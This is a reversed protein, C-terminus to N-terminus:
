ATDVTRREGIELTNVSSVKRDIFSTLFSVFKYVDEFNTALGVSIRVSSPFIDLRTSAIEYLEDFSVRENREFFSAMKDRSFDHVIEGSGPNCFCGTRLSINDKGALMEVRRYDFRVGEPDELNFSVTGGRMETTLPGYLRVLPAGNTHRLDTLQDLLWGTLATVRAQIRDIGVSEIHRLGIEVAPISLYNVTGDEFAAHGENLYHWGAGQVSTISITGGAFWPRQLQELADKRAVLAGIGTPYGFIKYFSMSVFDPQNQSFDLRNTPTYAAADLLVHWGRRKAEAIWRLDHKVGSFNSQGPFAFLNFAGPNRQDLTRTLEDPDVRLDPMHTPVYTVDAGRARAFERIGNVSNHNDYLAVYRSDSTFPYSEGVLKLAGSANPTFIVDYVDPDANFHTLVYSRAQEVRDTMAQSTPNHSHPNGWVGDRLMNLHEDVQSQAYLGGGTYDLYVQANDDLRQYERARLDDVDFEPNQDLFEAKAVAFDPQFAM